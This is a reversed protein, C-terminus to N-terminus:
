ETQGWELAVSRLRRSNHLFQFSVQIGHVDYILADTGEPPIRPNIDINILEGWHDLDLDQEALAANEAPWLSLLAADGTKALRLEGREFPGSGLTFEYFTWHKNQDTEEVQTSLAEAFRKPTLDEVKALQEVLKNLTKGDM